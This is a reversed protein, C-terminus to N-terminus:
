GEIKSEDTTGADQEAAVRDLEAQEEESLPPYADPMDLYEPDFHFLRIYGDEGGSAYSHGDPNIALTNIPGFHGKIRGIENAHVMDHIRCEFGGARGATTTVSMADQGGGMLVHEKNPSIAAANLPRDAEYTALIELTTSNFLIAKQDKGATIFMSKDANFSVGSIVGTHPQIEKLEEGDQLDLTRLYGDDGCALIYDNFPGFV